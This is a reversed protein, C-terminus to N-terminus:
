FLARVGLSFTQGLGQFNNGRVIKGFSAELNLMKTLQYKGGVGLQTYNQEFDNGLDIRFSQQVNTFVTIKSSPFYSVFASIPLLLSNNAFREGINETVPDADTSKEGFHYGFDVEGFFQFKDAAFSKDYFFKTEWVYSRVDLYPAGPVDEFLPIYFSTQLSFNSVNKLPQIKVSPAVSSLGNRTTKRDDKFSLVDLAGAGGYTNSKTQLIVGVNFRSSETIGTFVELKSTFFTRRDVKVSKSGGGVTAETETYLSNFLKIDWQGKKLLKSPTYEQINSKPAEEPTEEQSFGLFSISLLVLLLTNKFKM